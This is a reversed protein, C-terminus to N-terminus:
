RHISRLAGRAFPCDQVCEASIRRFPVDTGSIGNCAGAIGFYTVYLGGNALVQGNQDTNSLLFAVVSGTNDWPLAELVDGSAMSPGYANATLSAVTM